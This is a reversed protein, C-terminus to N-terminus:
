ELLEKLSPPRIEINMSNGKVPGNRSAIIPPPPINM